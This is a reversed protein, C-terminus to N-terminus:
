RAAPAPSAGLKLRVLAIVADPCFRTGAGRECEALVDEPARAQSAAPRVTMTDWADAVALLRAGLSIDPGALGDPGGSGDFRERHHRIWDIQEPTLLGALLQGGAAASAGAM